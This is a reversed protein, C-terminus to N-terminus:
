ACASAEKLEAPSSACTTILGPPDDVGPVTTSSDGTAPLLTEGCEITTRVTEHFGLVGSAGSFRAAWRRSGRGGHHRLPVGQRHLSESPTRPISDKESTWECTDSSPDLLPTWATGM